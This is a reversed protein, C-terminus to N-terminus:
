LVVKEGEAFTERLFRRIHPASVLQVMRVFVAVPVPTGGSFLDSLSRTPGDSCRYFVRDSWLRRGAPHEEYTRLMDVLNHVIRSAHTERYHRLILVDSLGCRIEEVFEDFNSGNTLNVTANPELGHRDGGSIVPKGWVKALAVTDRNEEWPRLGNLELAHISGGVRELFTQVAEHHQAQGIGKEDWLPHNLVILTEPTEALWTFIEPLMRESAAATFKKMEEFVARGGSRPLNHIGVHFFTSGFPVTWETSVPVDRCEPLLQLSVPAEIDDHDTLSVLATLGLGEIQSRELDWAGHPSLPPTWWGDRLDLEAGKVRRYREAGHRLIAALLGCRQAAHNIFDLSERSHLTHSHLSVGTHFRRVPSEENWQLRINSRM